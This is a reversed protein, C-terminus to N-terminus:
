YYTNSDDGPSRERRLIKYNMSPEMTWGMGAISVVATIGAPLCISNPDIGLSTMSACVGGALALLSFGLGVAFAKHLKERATPTQEM